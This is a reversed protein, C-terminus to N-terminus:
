KRQILDSSCTLLVEHAKSILADKDDKSFGTTIELNKCFDFVAMAEVCKEQAKTYTIKYGSNIITRYLTFFRSSYYDELSACNPIHTHEKLFRSIADAGIYSDYDSKPPEMRNNKIDTLSYYLIINTFYFIM